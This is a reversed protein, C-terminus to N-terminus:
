LGLVKDIAHIVGSSIGAAVLGYKIRNWNKAVQENHLTNEVTTQGKKFESQAEAKAALPDDVVREGLKSKMHSRLELHPQLEQDLPITDPIESHIKEGIARYVKARAANQVETPTSPNKEIADWDIKQGLQRRYELVENPDTSNLAKDADKMVGDVDKALKEVDSAPLNKKLGEIDDLLKGEGLGSDTLTSTTFQPADAVIDNMKSATENIAKTVPHVAKMLSNKASGGVPITDGAHKQLTDLAEQSLDKGGLQKGVTPGDLPSEVVVPTGHQPAPTPERKTLWEPTIAEATKSVKGPIKGAVDGVVEATKGAVKGTGRVIEPANELALGAAIDTAAGSIDGSEAREATSNIAPGALPVKSLARDALGSLYVNGGKWFEHNNILDKAVGVEDNGKKLLTAAPADLVRHLALTAKPPNAAIAESIKPQGQALAPTNAFKSNEERIKNLIEAKEQDTAPDNFAHYLGTLADVTNRKLGAVVGTPQVPQPPGQLGAPVPVIKGSASDYRHTVAGIDGATKPQAPAGTTAQFMEAESAPNPQTTAPAIAKGGLDSFDIGTSAPAIPKGGLDSFDLPTQPTNGM